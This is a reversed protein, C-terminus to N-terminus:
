SAEALPSALASINRLTSALAQLWLSWLGVAMPLYFPWRPPAWASEIPRGNLIYRWAQEGAVWALWFLAPLVLFVFLLIMVGRRLREPFQRSIVDIAVHRDMREAYAAALLFLSGNMLNVVDFAWITPSQLVYRAFVETLTVGILIVLMVCAVAVLLSSLRDVILLLGRM